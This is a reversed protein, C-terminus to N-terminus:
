PELEQVLQKFKLGRQEYDTFMDWSACAPSLLVVDGARALGAAAKVTEGFEQVRVIRNYGTARVSAEIAGAAQGVLVLGKVRQEIVAAFTSFDSGKNKGGAILVVPCDYAEIAKIAADPNTGKSDNIYTVGNVMGVLEMRHAVPQFAKLAGAVIPGPIGLSLAGACAALVNELNHVGKLQLDGTRIVPVTGAPGAFWVLDDRLFAGAPVERSRSFQWVRGPCETALGAVLSDDANLVCFDGARQNRFIRAKVERYAAMTGHRDLHDPTINLIMALRPRFTTVTELQFSSVEAVVWRGSTLGAVDAVLPRGINGGVLPQWGAADLIAGVMATTTTKGNTGTIAVFPVPSLLFALELEGTLPIGNQRAEQAPPVSLPVGPSMVVETFGGAVAPPYGDGHVEIGLQLLERCGPIASAPKQDCITVRAGLGALVRAAALGSKGAGVVLVKPGDQWRKNM